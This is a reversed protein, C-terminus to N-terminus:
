RGSIQSNFIRSAEEFSFGWYVEEGDCTVTFGGSFNAWFCLQKDDVQAKAYPFYTNNAWEAFGQYDVIRTQSQSMSVALTM